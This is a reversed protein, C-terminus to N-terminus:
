ATMAGQENEIVQVIYDENGTMANVYVLYTDDGQQVRFEWALVETTQLLPIVCLRPGSVVKLNDKLVGRAEQASIQPKPISRSPNDHFTLYAKQDFAIVKCTDLAVEVKVTDPYLLTETGDVMTVPVYTFVIRNARQGPKRWGTERVSLGKSALFDGAAKRAAEIDFRASGIARGDESWIVAGGQRAVATMVESGDARKGSVLYSPIAGEITGVSVSQFAEGTGLYDLGIRKADEASIDPGPRALPLKAQNRESFPGDYIPSPISQALTDIESFGEGLADRSVGQASAGMGLAALIGARAPTTTANQATTLLARALDKVGNEMRALEAWEQETVAGGRSLRQALVMAYDGATAIFQRVATFNVNPVDLQSLTDRATQAQSYATTLFTTQQNTTSAGRAKALSAEVNEIHTILSYLARQRGAELRLNAAKAQRYQSLGFILSLVTVVGLLALLGWRSRTKMLHQVEM